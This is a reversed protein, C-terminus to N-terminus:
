DGPRHPLSTVRLAPRSRRRRPATRRRHRPRVHDPTRSSPSAGLFRAEVLHRHVDYSNGLVRMHDKTLEATSELDHMRMAAFIIGDEAASHATLVARLFDFREDFAHVAEPDRDACRDAHDRLDALEV